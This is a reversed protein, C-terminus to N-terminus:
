VPKFPKFVKLFRMASQFSQIKFLEFTKLGTQITKLAKLRTQIVKFTELTKLCTQIVKFKEFNEFPKSDPQVIEFIQSVPGCLNTDNLFVVYTGPELSDINQENSFFVGDKTWEYTYPAAGGQPSISIVGDFVGNCQVDNQEDVIIEM